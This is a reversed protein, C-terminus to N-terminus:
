SLRRRWRETPADAANPLALGIALLGIGVVGALGILPTPMPVTGIAVDTTEAIEVHDFGPVAHLTRRVIRDSALAVCQQGIARTLGRRRGGM